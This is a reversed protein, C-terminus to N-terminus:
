EEGDSEDGVKESSFDIGAMIGFPEEKGEIIVICFIPEGLLETIRIVTFRKTKKTSKIQAICGKECLVKESGIHGNGTMDLNGGIKDGLLGM